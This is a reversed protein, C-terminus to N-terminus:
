IKKLIEIELTKKMKKNMVSNIKEFYNKENQIEKIHKLIDDANINTDSWNNGDGNSSIYIELEFEKILEYNKPHYVIPIIYKNMMLSLVISHFRMGIILDQESFIDMLYNYSKEDDYIKIGDIDSFYKTLIFDYNNQFPIISIEYEKKLSDILSRIEEVFKLFKEKKEMCVPALVLGIKKVEKVNKNSKIPFNFVLDNTIKLNKIGIKKLENFSYEDRVTIYNAKELVNKFRIYSEKKNIPGAGIGLLFIKKKLKNFVNILFFMDKTSNPNWDSIAGGGAVILVDSAIVNYLTKFPNCIINKIVSKVSLNITTSICNIGKHNKKVEKPKSAMVNIEANNVNQNIMYIMSDLLLEDGLNNEGFWGYVLIKKKKM